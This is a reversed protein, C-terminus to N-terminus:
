KFAVHSRVPLGFMGLFPAKEFEYDWDILLPGLWGTQDLLEGQNPNSPNGFTVMISYLGAELMCDIEFEFVGYSGGKTSLPEM